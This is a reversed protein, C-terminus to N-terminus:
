QLGRCQSFDTKGDPYSLRKGAGGASGPCSGSGSHLYFDCRGAEATGFARGCEYLLAGETRQVRKCSGRCLCSQYRGASYDGNFGSITQCDACLNSKRPKWPRCNCRNNEHRKGRKRKHKGRMEASAHRYLIVNKIRLSFRVYAIFCRGRRKKNLVNKIFNIQIFYAVSFVKKCSMKM